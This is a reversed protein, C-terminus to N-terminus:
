NNKGEEVLVKGDEPRLAAAKWVPYRGNMKSSDDTLWAARQMEASLWEYPVAWPATLEPLEDPPELTPGLCFTATQEYIHHPGGQM